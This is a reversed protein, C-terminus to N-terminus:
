ARTPIPRTPVLKPSGESGDCSGPSHLMLASYFTISTKSAEESGSPLRSISFLNKYHNDDNSPFHSTTLSGDLASTSSHVLKYAKPPSGSPPSPIAFPYKWWPRM